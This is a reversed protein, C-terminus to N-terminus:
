YRNEAFKLDKRRPSSAYAFHLKPLANVTKDDIGCYKKVLYGYHKVGNKNISDCAMNYAKVFLKLQKQRKVDKLSNLRFAFVGFQMDRDRTDMLVPNQYLRAKTAQPETLFMADMEKNLLMDLRVGVDNVQIRYVEYKPKVSDIALSTLFDTVSYRTMAVMKDELQKIETIRAKRNSILQWYANTAIPYNLLVGRKRLREARFLDTVSGEVRENILATDCDMQSKFYKLHVSVGLTDFLREEKAIYLPLCDLTPMVGVKLSAKDISDLRARDQKSIRQKEQYSQGCSSVLIIAILLPFIKKM